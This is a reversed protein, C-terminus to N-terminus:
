LVDKEGEKEHEKWIEVQTKYESPRNRRPFRDYYYRSPLERIGRVFLVMQRDMMAIYGHDTNNDRPGVNTKGWVVPWGKDATDLFLALDLAERQTLLKQSSDYLYANVIDIRVVWKEIFKQAELAELLIGVAKVESM